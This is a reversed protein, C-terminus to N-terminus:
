APYPPVFRAFEALVESHVHSNAVLLALHGVFDLVHGDNTVYAAFVHDDDIVHAVPVNVLAAARM